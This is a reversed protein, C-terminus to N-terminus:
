LHIPLNIAVGEWVFPYVFSNSIKGLDFSQHYGNDAFYMPVDMHKLHRLHKRFLHISKHGDRGLYLPVYTLEMTDWIFQTSGHGDMEPYIPLNIDM